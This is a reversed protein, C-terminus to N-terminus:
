LDGREDAIYRTSQAMSQFQISQFHYSSEQNQVKQLNPRQVFFFGLILLKNVKELRSADVIVDEHPTDTCTSQRM